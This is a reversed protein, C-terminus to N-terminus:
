VVHAALAALNTMGVAVFPPLIRRHAPGEQLISFSLELLSGAFSTVTWTASVDFASAIHGRYDSKSFFGLVTNLLLIGLTLLAMIFAVPNKPVSSRVLGPAHGANGAVLDHLGVHWKKTNGLRRCSLTLETLLYFPLHAEVDM